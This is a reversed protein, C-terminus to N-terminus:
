YEICINKLSEFLYNNKENYSQNRQDCMCGNAVKRLNNADRGIMYRDCTLAQQLNICQISSSDLPVFKQELPILDHCKPSFILLIMRSCLPFSVMNLASFDTVSFRSSEFIMTIPNDSTVIEDKKDVGIIWIGRRIIEALRSVSDHHFLYRIHLVESIDKLVKNDNSIISDALLRRYIPTRLYQYAIYLSLCAKEDISLGTKGDFHSLVMRSNYRDIIREIYPFYAEVYDSLYNDVFRKNFMFIFAKEEQSFDKVGAEELDKIYKKHDFSYFGKKHCYDNVNQNERAENKVFDYCCIREPNEVTGFNKLLAQQVFHDKPSEKSM